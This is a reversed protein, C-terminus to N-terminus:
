DDLIGKPLEGVDDKSIAMKEPQKKELEAIRNMLMQRERRLRENDSELDAIVKADVLSLTPIPESEPEPAEEKVSAQM